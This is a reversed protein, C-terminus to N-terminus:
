AHWNDPSERIGMEPIVAERKAETGEAQYGKRQTEALLAREDWTSDKQAAKRLARLFFYNSEVTSIANM